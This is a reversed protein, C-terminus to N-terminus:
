SKKLVTNMIKKIETEFFFKINDWNINILMKPMPERDADNFFVLARAAQLHFSPYNSFKKICLDFIKKLRIKKSIMFLDIFDKKSGRGIIANLKMPAVDELQALESDTLVKSYGITKKSKRWPNNEQTRWSRSIKVNFYLTWLARARESLLREGDKSIAEVIDKKSYRHILWKIQKPAGWELIRNIILNRFLGANLTSLTYEPFLPSLMFPLPQVLLPTKKLNEVESADLLIEGFVRACPNLQKSHIYRYIQRRSKKLKQCAERVSCVPRSTDRVHLWWTGDKKRTLGIARKNM